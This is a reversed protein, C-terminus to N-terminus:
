TNGKAVKTLFLYLYLVHTHSTHDFLLYLYLIAMFAADAHLKTIINVVPRVKDVTMKKEELSESESKAPELAQCAESVLCVQAASRVHEELLQFLSALLEGDVIAFDLKDANVNALPSAVVACLRSLHALEQSRLSGGGSHYAGTTAKKDASAEFVASRSDNRGECAIIIKEIAETLPDSKDMPRPTDSPLGSSVAPSTAMTTMTRRPSKKHCLLCFIRALALSFEM